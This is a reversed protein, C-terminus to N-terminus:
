AEPTTGLIVDFRAALEGIRSGEVPRVRRHRLRPGERRPTQRYVGDRMNGPHGKVYCQTTLLEKGRRASRTTSTPRGAPTPSPSSPGSTISAPRGPSSGATARSTRTGSTATARHRHPPLRRPQRGALDRGPRQPGPEGPTSSGAAWTRSRASPPPSPTTSSSCTTTPTSRSGTRTSRGRPRARADAGAGRRVRRPRHLGGRRPDLHEPLRPPHPRNRRPEDHLSRRSRFAVWTPEHAAEM